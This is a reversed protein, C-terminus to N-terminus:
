RIARARILADKARSVSKSGTDNAISELAEEMIALRKAQQELLAQARDITKRYEIPNHTLNTKMLRKLLRTERTNLYRDFIRVAIRLMKEARELETM